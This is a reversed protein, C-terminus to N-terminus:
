FVCCPLVIEVFLEFFQGFSIRNYLVTYISIHRPLVVQTRILFKYNHCKCITKMLLISLFQLCLVAESDLYQLSIISFDNYILNLLFSVALYAISMICRIICQDSWCLSHMFTLFIQTDWFLLFYPFLAETTTALSM